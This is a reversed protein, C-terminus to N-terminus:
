YLSKLATLQVYSLSMLEIFMRGSVQLISNTRATSKAGSQLGLAITSHPLEIESSNFSAPRHRMTLDGNIRLFGTPSLSLEENVQFVDIEARFGVIVNGNIIGSGTLAGRSLELGAGTTLTSTNSVLTVLGLAMVFNGTVSLQTMNILLHPSSNM